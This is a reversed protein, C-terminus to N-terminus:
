MLTIVVKQFSDVNALLNGHSRLGAKPSPHRFGLSNIPHHKFCDKAGCQCLRPSDITSSSQSSVVVM